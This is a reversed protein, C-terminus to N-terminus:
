HNGAGAKFLKSQGVELVQFRASSINKEKLASALDRVPADIGEDTLQFTGFHMGIAQAAGLDLMAQVAEAPNAHQERMFWRPEYAGIPLLAIDPSGLKEQTMKFHPGYGTDSAFYIVPANPAKVLFSGWLSENTDTLTRKSWHQSPALYIDHGAISTKEWWDLEKIKEIGHNKLIHQNKLPVVFLPDFRKKLEVLSDIDMHDYHNHGVLVVDIKPLEALTCGPPRVRQPGLFSVPSARQSFVPDTMFTLGPLQVVFTAHGIFTLLAEGTGPTAFAVQQTNQVQQPWPVPASTWRWKLVDWLGKDINGVPNFFKNGDFHDSM